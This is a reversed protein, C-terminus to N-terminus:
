RVILKSTKKFKETEILVLYIGKEIGNIMYNDQYKFTKILEGFINYLRINKITANTKVKFYSQTPNPYISISNKITYNSTTLADCATQTEVFNSTADVGLWNTTSNAANDVFICNLNPNNITDFDTILGNANNQIYVSTLNNNGCYLQELVINQNLNITELNNSWIFLAILDLNLSVDIESINNVSANIFWLNPNQSIDLNTVSTSECLLVELNPCQSIDLSSLFNASCNLYTLNPKNGIDLNGFFSINYCSLYELNTTINEFNLNLSLNDNCSLHTLANNNSLDLFTLGENDAITLYTLAAFDQIGTMYGINTSQITLNTITNIDNTLVQGDLTNESDIGQNILEQEFNTDPIATYQAKLLGINAIITILILLKKIEM